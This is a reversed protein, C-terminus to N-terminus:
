SWTLAGSVRLSVIWQLMGDVSIAAPKIQKVYASFALWSSDHFEIRFNRLVGSSKDTQLAGQVSDGPIRNVTMTGTGFDELGPLVERAESDLDTADIDPAEGGSLDISAVGPITTFVEAGTSSVTIAFTDNVAFDPEGDALTFALHDDDYATGVNGVGTIAGSPSEVIFTATAGGAIVRLTYVGVVASAGVTIAGMTGTGTNGAGAEAAASGPGSAGDGRKVRAANTKVKPM